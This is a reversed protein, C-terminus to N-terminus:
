ASATSAPRVSRLMGFFEERAAALTAAPGTAKFFWPGGEGEVVAGLLRSGPQPAAPGGMGTAKLTGEVEIWTVRYAGVEFGGREPESGAATEVQGVWRELNAEVSGGQGAGFHFAALEAPGAEGPILAQAFRMSSAPPQPQWRAPLDFALALAAVTTGGPAAPSAPAAAAGGHSSVLDPGSGPAAPAPPESPRPCAALLLALGLSAAALPPRQRM